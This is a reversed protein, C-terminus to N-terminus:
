SKRRLGVAAAGATLLALLAIGWQSLTPVAAVSAGPVPPAPVPPLPNAVPRFTANLTCDATITDATTFANGNLTGECGTVSELEFGADPTFNFTISKGTTLPYNGIDPSVTGGTFTTMAVIFDEMEFDAAVEHSAGKVFVDDVAGKFTPGWGGSGFGVEVAMVVLNKLEDRNRAESFSLNQFPLPGSSRSQFVTGASVNAEVWQDVTPDGGNASDTWALTAVHQTNVPKTMDFLYLRMLPAADTPASSSARLWKFRADTISSLPGFGDKTPAYYAIGAKGANGQTSTLLLSGTGSAPYMHDGTIAAQGGGGLGVQGWQALLPGTGPLGISWNFESQPVVQSAYVVEASATTSMAAMVCAALIKRKM